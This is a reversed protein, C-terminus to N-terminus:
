ILDMLFEDFEASEVMVGSIVDGNDSESFVTAFSEFAARDPSVLYNSSSSQNHTIDDSSPKEEKHELKVSQSPSFFPNQKNTITNDFSLFLSSDNPSPDFILESTKLITKCSHQCAYTTRYKPPDEQIRQM